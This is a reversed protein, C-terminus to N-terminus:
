RRRRLPKRATWWAILAALGLGLAGAALALQDPRCNNNPVNGVHGGRGGALYQYPHVAVAAGRNVPIATVM